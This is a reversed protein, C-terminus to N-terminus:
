PQATDTWAEVKDVLQGAANTLMLDDRAISASLYNFGLVAPIAVALGLATEILAEAIGASVSSLGGSGTAAIGQFASIIGLVTGLLGVFPAVSGVSALLPLGRKLEALLEEIHRELHRRMSEVPSLPSDRGNARADRYTMLGAEFLRAACGARHKAAVALARELGSASLAPGLADVFRESAARSRRLILIRNIFVTWSAIGMTVLLAAVTLAPASM